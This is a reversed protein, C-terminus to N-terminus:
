ETGIFPSGWGHFRLLIAGYVLNIYHCALMFPSFKGLGWEQILLELQEHSSLPFVPKRQLLVGQCTGDWTTLRLQLRLHAVSFPYYHM